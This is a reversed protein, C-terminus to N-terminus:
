MELLIIIYYNSYRSLLHDGALNATRDWIGKSQARTAAQFTQFSSFIANNSIKFSKSGFTALALGEILKRVKIM